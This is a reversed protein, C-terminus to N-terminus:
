ELGLCNVGAKDVL